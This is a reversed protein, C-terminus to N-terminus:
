LYPTIDEQCDDALFSLSRFRLGVLQEYLPNIKCMPPIHVIKKGFLVVDREFPCDAPILKCLFHAVKPDEIEVSDLWNKVPELPSKLPSHTLEATNTDVEGEDKGDLTRRLEELVPPNLFLIQCYDRLLQDEATSYLGDALAVMVCTKLFNEAMGSQGEFYAQLVELSIPVFPSQVQAFNQDKLIEAILIQESDDLYGDVWAVSMLGHVWVSSAAELSSNLDSLTAM